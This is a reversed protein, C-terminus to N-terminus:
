LVLWSGLLLKLLSSDKNEDRESTRISPLGRRECECTKYVGEADRMQLFSGEGSYGGQKREERRRKYSLMVVSGVRSSSIAVWELIRAPVIRHVSSGPLNCDM